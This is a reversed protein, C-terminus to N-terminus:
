GPSVFSGLLEAVEGPTFGLTADGVTLEVKRWRPSETPTSRPWTWIGRAVALRRATAAFSEADTRLRVHMMPTQPPDPVVDLGDVKALEAAVARAHDVYSAMLPLRRRLGVLASAAYPWMAFLTGGHRSRWERAQAVVEDDGLLCCGALGGLGKYFSVYVSDFLGAIEALPRDYFPGCEWLRAGDLHVVGGLARAAEVQGTLDDWSPLQGGIERQPLEFVFAALPEHVSEIDARTLLEHANGVPRGVLSHLRQYAQKEHLELHCTPHFAVTRSGGRDARIRAVIQQAMTGSPMFVAAPMGLLERVEDELRAVTGKDGYRDAALDDAALYTLEALLEAPVRRGHGGLFRTCRDYLEDEGPGSEASEAAAVPEVPETADGALQGGETVAM